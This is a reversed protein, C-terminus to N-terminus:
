RQSDFINDLVVLTEVPDSGAAEAPVPNGAANVYAAHGRHGISLVLGNAAMADSVAQVFGLAAATLGAVAHGAADIASDDFGTLYVRGRHARGALATRETVVLSVEEPLANGIGTGAAAPTDSQILPFNAARLDRIDMAQLATTAALFALYTTTRADLKVDGFVANIEALGFIGLSTAHLVNTSAKGNPLIWLLRVQLTDPIVLPGPIYGPSPM